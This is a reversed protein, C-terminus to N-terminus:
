AQEVVEGELVNFRRRLVDGFQKRLQVNDATLVLVDSILGRVMAVVQEVAVFGEHPQRDIGLLKRRSESNRRLKDAADIQLRTRPELKLPVTRTKADKGDGETVVDAIDGHALPLLVRDLQDLRRLEMDLGHRMTAATDARAEAAVAHIDNAVTGQNCQLGRATLIEAIRTFPLRDYVYLDWAQRRRELRQATDTAERHNGGTPTLPGPATRGPRKADLPARKRGPKAKPKRAKTM